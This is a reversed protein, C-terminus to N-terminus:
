KRKYCKEWLEGKINRPSEERWQPAGWFRYDWIDWSESGRRYYNSKKGSYADEINNNKLFRRIKKNAQRKAYKTKGGVKYVPTRKFSRSM